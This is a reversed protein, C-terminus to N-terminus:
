GDAGGRPGPGTRGSQEESGLRSCWVFEVDGTAPDCSWEGVGCEVAQGRVVFMGFSGGVWFGLLFSAACFFLVGFCVRWDDMM